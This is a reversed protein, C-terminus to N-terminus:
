GRTHCMNIDHLFERNPFTGDTDNVKRLETTFEKCGLIYIVRLQKEGLRQKFIM